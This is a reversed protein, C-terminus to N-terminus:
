VPEKVFHLKDDFHLGDLQVALPEDADCEKLHSIHFTNHVRSLEQPLELKYAVSRVKELVKFPRVYGPNLKQWKRFRVVRKWPSVKLMVCDRVQFEMPKRKLNAYSKKRDRVAQIRQKIQVIKETTEQVIEPGTLQVEGVEAWCGPSSCKRDYLAEFPASKISTHYKKNYSFKIRDKRSLADDVVNAKRPHYRIECDYDSLFELWRRQRINLEKKERQMLVVGLGKHSANCYVVFDESGELLALIPASYLKQKLLQFISEQKDGWDFNVGEQTFKTLLKAINLFRVIFKRYYGALCNSFKAYLEEKKLLELIAKLHEEHEKKNMSLESHWKQYIRKGYEFNTIVTLKNLELYDIYMRFSGNKKKVFLFPAGWHSFSPRIFGKDSLEQLQESLKKMKSPTLRYPAQAVSAAGPVLDIQFETQQTSPLGKHGKNQQSSSGNHNGGLKRKNCANKAVKDEQRKTQSISKHAMNTKTEYISIAEIANAVRQAVVREIEEVSMGQNVIKMTEHDDIPVDFLDALALHEEEKDEVDKVVDDDNEDDDSSKNDDDDGRDLPYDAPDEEDEELNFGTIYGPLLATPLADTPLPLDGEEDYAIVKFVRFRM